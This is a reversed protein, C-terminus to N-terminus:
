QEIFEITVDWMFVNNEVTKMTATPDGTYFVRTSNVGDFPDPYNVSVYTHIKIASLLAQAEADTLLVWSCSLTRKNAVVEKNMKGSLTRGSESSSIDQFGWGITTPFKISSGNVSMHRDFAM